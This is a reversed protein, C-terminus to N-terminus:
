GSDDINKGNLIHQSMYKARSLIAMGRQRFIKSLAEKIVSFEFKVGDVLRLIWQLYRMFNNALPRSPPMSPQTKVQATSLTPATKIEPPPLPISHTPPTFPELSPLISQSLKLARKLQVKLYYALENLKKKNSKAKDIQYHARSRKNAQQKQYPKRCGFPCCVDKRGQNRAHVLFIIGCHVCHCVLKELHPCTRLLAELATAYAKYAREASGLLYWGM